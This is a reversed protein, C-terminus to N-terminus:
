CCSGAPSCDAVVLSQFSVQGQPAFFDTPLRIHGRLKGVPMPYTAIPDVGLHDRVADIGGRALRDPRGPNVSFSALGLGSPCYCRRQPGELLRTPAFVPSGTRLREVLHRIVELHSGVVEDLDMRELVSLDLRLCPKFHRLHRGLETEVRRQHQRVELSRYLGRGSAIRRGQPLRRTDDCRPVRGDYKEDM